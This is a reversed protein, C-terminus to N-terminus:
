GLVRQVFKAGLQIGAPDVGHGLGQSVHGEVDFGLRQLEAYAHTYAALPLVTDASGHVLLVPPKSRVDEARLGPGAIMGSYGLIGALPRARRIGVHLAMMTGQSFGALVLRSEDLGHEALLSDLFADLVPAARAAGAALAPRSLDHLGWWQYGGPAGPCREPADPAIFLTDPLLQRWMPAFSILDAGNSGYGHLLVVISKPSAGGAPALKPGDLQQM